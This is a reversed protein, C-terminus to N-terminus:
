RRPDEGAMSSASYGLASLAAAPAVKNRIMEVAKPWDAESFFKRTQQIDPRASAYPADRVMKEKIANRVGESESINLAVDHPLDAFAQLVGMTAEGSNPKTPILNYDADFKGLGPVYGSSNSATSIESPYISQLTGEHQKLLAKADKASADPNFPFITVGRNSATAGYGTNNLLSNLGAMQDKTAQVGAAPDLLKYPNAERTDMMIANKYKGGVNNMTNALHWAGAEQADTVARLREIADMTASTNKAVKGTNEGEGITPFDLLPRSITMPNHEMTGQSNMYAGTTHTAPLQRMNLASYLVDRDGAGVTPDGSLTYPTPRTWAGKQSYALKDAPSANLMEPIHNSSAGPIAEHTASGAHKYLYDQFTNNADRISQSMGEYLPGAYRGTGKSGRSYFDQAKDYVWPLEQVHPGMWDSRGGVGAKNARDVTLATEADMFPHMTGSAGGKWITGDPNTYGMNQAHRFDNVGFLGNNPIRPDLKNSYEGIKYGMEAPRAEEVASDLTNMGASRYAMGPEGTARSNRHKLAFALESEPSVGASYVGHEELARPLQHPETTQAMGQKAREYWTGARTPDAQAVSSAADEFKGSLEKRMAGLGQPSTITRPAGVYGGTTDPKLHKNARFFKLAEEDGNEKAMQRYVDPAQAVRPGTSKIEKKEVPADLAGQVKQALKAEREQKQGFKNVLDAEPRTLTRANKFADWYKGVMGRVENIAEPAKGAGEVAAKLVQRGGGFHQIHGGAKHGQPEDAILHALGAAGPGILGAYKGIKPVHSLFPAVAGAANIAGAIKNRIGPEQFREAAEGANWGALPIQGPLKNAMGILKAKAIQNAEQAMRADEAKKALQYEMQRSAHAGQRESESTLFRNQREREMAAHNAGKQMEVERFTKSRHAEKDEHAQRRAAEARNHEAQRQDEQQEHIIRAGHERQAREAELKAKYEQEKQAAIEPPLALPTGGQPVVFGTSGANFQKAEMAKAYADKYDQGGFFQGEGELGKHQSLAFNEVANPGKDLEAPLGPFERRVFEPGPAYPKGPAYVGPSYSAGPKYAGANFEGPNKPLPNPEAPHYEPFDSNFWNKSGMARGAAQAALAAGAGVAPYAAEPHLTGGETATTPTNGSMDEAPVVNSTAQPVYVSPHLDEQPVPTGIAM